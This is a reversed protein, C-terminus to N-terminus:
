RLGWTYLGITLLTVLSFLRIGWKLLKEERALIRDNREFAAHLKGVVAELMQELTQPDRAFGALM